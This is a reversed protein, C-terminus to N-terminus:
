AGGLPPVVSDRTSWLPGVGSGYGAWHGAVCGWGSGLARKFRHRYAVELLAPM